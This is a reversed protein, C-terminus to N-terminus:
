SKRLRPLSITRRMETPLRRKTRKKAEELDSNAARLSETLERHESDYHEHAEGLGSLDDILADRRLVETELRSKAVELRTQEALMM